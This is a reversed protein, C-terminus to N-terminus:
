PSRLIPPPSRTPARVLVSSRLPRPEVRDPRRLYVFALLAALAGVVAPGGLPPRDVWAAGPTTRHSRTVIAAHDGPALTRAFAAGEAPRDEPLAQRSTSPTLVVAVIGVLGLVRRALGTRLDM